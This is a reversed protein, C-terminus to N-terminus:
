YIIYFRYFRYTDNQSFIICYSISLLLSLRIRSNVCGPDVSRPCNREHEDKKENGTRLGPVRIATRHCKDDFEKMKQVIDHLDTIYRNGPETCGSHRVMTFFFPDKAHYISLMIFPSPVLVHMFYCVACCDCWLKGRAM